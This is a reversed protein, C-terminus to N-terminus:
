SFIETGKEPIVFNGRTLSLKGRRGPAGPVKEAGIGAWAALWSFVLYLIAITNPEKTRM